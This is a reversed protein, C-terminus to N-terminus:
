TNKSSVCSVFNKINSGPIKILSPHRGKPFLILEASRVEVKWKDKNASLTAKPSGSGSVTIMFEGSM